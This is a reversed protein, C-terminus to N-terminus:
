RGRCAVPTRRGVEWSAQEGRGRLGYRGNTYYPAADTGANPLAMAVGGVIAVRAEDGVFTVSLQTGDTCSYLIPGNPPLPPPPTQCAALAAAAVAALLLLRLM